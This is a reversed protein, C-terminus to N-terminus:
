LNSLSRLLQRAAHQSAEAAYARLIARAFTNLLEIPDNGAVAHALAPGDESSASRVIEALDAREEIEASFSAWAPLGREALVELIQEEYLQPLVEGIEEAPAKALGAALVRALAAPDAHRAAIRLLARADRPLDAPDPDPM